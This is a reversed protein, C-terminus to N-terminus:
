LERKELNSHEHPQPPRPATKLILNPYFRAARRPHPLGLEVPYLLGRRSSFSSSFHSILEFIAFHAKYLSKGAQRMQAVLKDVQRMLAVLLVLALGAQRMFAVLM